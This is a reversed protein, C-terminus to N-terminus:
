GKKKPKDTKKKKKNISKVTIWGDNDKKSNNQSTM